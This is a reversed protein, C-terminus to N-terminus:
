AIVKNPFLTMNHSESHQTMLGRIQPPCNLGSCHGQRDRKGCPASVEYLM